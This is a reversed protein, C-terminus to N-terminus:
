LHFISIDKLSAYNNSYAYMVLVLSCGSHHITECLEAERILYKGIEPSDLPNDLNCLLGFNLFLM